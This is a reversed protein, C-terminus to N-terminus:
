GLEEMCRRACGVRKNEAGFPAAAQRMVLLQGAMKAAKTLERFARGSCRAIQTQNM